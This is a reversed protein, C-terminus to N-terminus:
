LQRVGGLEDTDEGLYAAIVEPNRRVEQPTGSAILMGFNLVVVKDSIRMILDMDHEIVLLTLGDARLRLLQEALRETEAANMGAAPEDLLLVAPRLALARALEVRRQDGYSLTAAPLEALHDIGLQGLLEMASTRSEREARRARPLALLAEVLTDRRRLHYGVLVNEIVSLDGFLRINQFTRAVGAAAMRHPAAGALNREGVFISGSSPHLLGSVINILTTKGAGNPGILGCITGAQVDFSVEHLARVGGFRRGVEQISLM